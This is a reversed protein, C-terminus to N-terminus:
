SFAINIFESKSLMINKFIKISLKKAIGLRTKETELVEAINILQRMVVFILLVISLNILTFPISFNNYINVLYKGYDASIIFNDINQDAQICQILPMVSIISLADFIMVFIVISILSLTRKLSVVKLDRYKNIADVLKIYNNKLSLM